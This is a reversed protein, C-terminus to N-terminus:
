RPVGHAEADGAIQYEVLRNVGVASPTTKFTTTDVRDARRPKCHFSVLAEKQGEVPDFRYFTTCPEGRAMKEDDHVILVPGSIFSTKVLMVHMFNVISSQKGGTVRAPQNNDHCCAHNEVCCVNALGACCVKDQEGLAARATLGAAGVVGVVVAAGVLIRFRMIGEQCSPKVGSRRSDPLFPSDSDISALLMGRDLIQL